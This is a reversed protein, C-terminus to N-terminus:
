RRGCRTSITTVKRTMATSPLVSPRSDHIISGSNSRTKAGPPDEASTQTPSAIRPSNTSRAPVVMAERESKVMMEIRMAEAMCTSM